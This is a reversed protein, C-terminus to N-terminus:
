LTDTALTVTKRLKRAPTKSNSIKLNKREEEEEALDKEKEKKSKKKREEEEQMYSSSLRHVEKEEESARPPLFWPVPLFNTASFPLPSTPRPPPSPRSPTTPHPPPLAPIRISDFDKPLNRNSFSVASYIQKKHFPAGNTYSVTGRLRNWMRVM